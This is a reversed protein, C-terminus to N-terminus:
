HSGIEDSLDTADVSLLLPFVATSTDGFASL